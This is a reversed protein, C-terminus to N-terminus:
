NNLNHVVLPDSAEEGWATVILYGETGAKALVIPDPIEKKVVIDKAKMKSIPACILLGSNSKCHIESINNLFNERLSKDVHIGNIVAERDYRNINSPLVDFRLNEFYQTIPLEDKSKATYKFSIGYISVFNDMPYRNDFYRQIDRICRKPIDGTYREVSGFALNYKLCLEIVKEHTIFKNLPYKEAFWLVTDHIKQSDNIKEQEKVAEVYKETSKFGFKTLTAVTDNDITKSNIIAKAEEVLKDASTSFDSHIKKILDETSLNRYVSEDTVLVPSKSFLKKFM